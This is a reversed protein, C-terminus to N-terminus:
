YQFYEFIKEIIELGARVGNDEYILSKSKDFLQVHVTSDISEKIRRSMDGKTPAKLEGSGNHTAVVRLTNTKSALQITLVNTKYDITTIKSNNYTSFRYFTGDVYLFCIYGMFYKGLWPIKAVSVFLSTKSHSFSNSHLWIWAEPFSTGWDKEVYGKGNSFDVEHTGFALKGQLTHNVSVIGHNCEMLPIYSYWGMIGPSLVTKPYKISDSFELRGKVKISEDDINIDIFSDTFVSDGIKVWFKNKKWEFSSIHYSIYHTEGTIGNIIQIFAHSNNGAM